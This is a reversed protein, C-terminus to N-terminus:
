RLPLLLHRYRRGWRLRIILSLTFGAASLIVTKPIWPWSLPITLMRWCCKATSLIPKAAREEVEPREEDFEDQIEGVIEELIDEVTVMGATGGYEDVLIALQSRHKQLIRLLKSIPLSEPVLLVKRALSRLDPREGANLSRLLDKIHM